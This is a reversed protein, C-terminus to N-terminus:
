GEALFTKVRINMFARCRDIITANGGKNPQAPADDIEVFIIKDLSQRKLRPTASVFEGIREISNKELLAAALAERERSLQVVQKEMAKVAHATGIYDVRQLVLLFTFIFFTLILLFVKVGDMNSVQTM